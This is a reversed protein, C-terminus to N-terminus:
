RWLLQIALLASVLAFLNVVFKNGKKIAIHAGIFGGLAATVLGVIGFRYNVIGAAIFIGLSIIAVTLQMARRTASATLATMGFCVMLIILQLSGLGSSLAAQFVVSMLLLGLGLIKVPRSRVRAHLGLNRVYLMPIGVVLITWGMIQQLLVQHSRLKLLAISGIVAGFASCISFIILLRRNTLKERHFRLSSGASVGLGSFKSNAIAATPSLGLLVLLPTGVIAAGGGSAGSLISAVLNVAAFIALEKM